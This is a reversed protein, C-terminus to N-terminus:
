AVVTRPAARVSGSEVLVLDMDADRVGPVHAPDTATVMAQGEGSIAEVLRRRRADDLESMVDDLLMLPTRGRAALVDREAFLLALLGLRQQGQSGFARLPKDGHTLVLDDRHPGHTTFGRELDQARREALERALGEIGDAQSRPRYSVSAAEPLGLEEARRAFPPRLEEIASARDTMLNWGCSAVQADWADLHSTSARGTRIRALLANRQGLARSYATRATARAPWVAEAFRDLHARRHAPPGKVLELRDPVFLELPPRVRAATTPDAEAGDIRARKVAGPELAVELVHDAGDGDTTVTSRALKADHRVLERENGTRCSRGTLGFFLGEVLNTKGAGNPGCVVTVGEGVEIEVREYNR